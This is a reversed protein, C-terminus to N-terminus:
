NKRAETYNVTDSNYYIKTPDTQVIKVDVDTKVQNNSVKSKGTKKCCYCIIPILIVVAAILAIVIIAIDKFDM